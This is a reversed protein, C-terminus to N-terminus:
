RYGKGPCTPNEPLLATDVLKEMTGDFYWRRAAVNLPVGNTMLENWHNGMLCHDTCSPAFVGHPSMQATAPRLEELTSARFLDVAHNQSPTCNRRDFRSDFCRGKSCQKHLKPCPPRTKAFFLIKDMRDYLSNVVMVPTRIYKLVESGKICEMWSAAGRSRHDYLCDPHLASKAHTQEVLPMLTWDLRHQMGADAICKVTIGRPALLRRKM